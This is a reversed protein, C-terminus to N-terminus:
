KAMRGLLQQEQAWNFHKAIADSDHRASVSRSDRRCATEADKRCLKCFFAAGAIYWAVNDPHNVCFHPPPVPYRRIRM